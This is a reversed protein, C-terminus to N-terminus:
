ISLCGNKILRLLNKEKVERIRDFQYNLKEEFNLQNDLITENYIKVGLFITHEKKSVQLRDDGMDDMTEKPFYNLVLIFREFENTKFIFENTIFAKIKERYLTVIDKDIGYMSNSTLYEM